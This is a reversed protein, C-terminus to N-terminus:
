WFYADQSPGPQQEPRVDDDDDDDDDDDVLLSVDREGVSATTPQVFLGRKWTEDAEKGENEAPVAPAAHHPRALGATGAVGVHAADEKYCDHQYVRKNLWCQGVNSWHAGRVSKGSAQFGFASTLVREYWQEALGKESGYLIEAFVSRYRRPTEISAANGGDENGGDDNEDDNKDDASNTFPVDHEKKPVYARSSLRLLRDLLASGIGQQRHRVHVFVNVKVGYRGTGSLGGALGPQYVSFFGFGLVKDPVGPIKKRGALAVLFPLQATRCTALIAHFEALPLPETDTAQAGKLVEFNYIEQVGPMDNTNAFRIRCSFGPFSMPGLPFATPAAAAAASASASSAKPGPNGARASSELTTPSPGPAPPPRALLAASSSFFLQSRLPVTAPVALLPSPAPIPSMAKMEANTESVRGAGQEHQTAREEDEPRPGSDVSAAVSANDTKEDSLSGGLQDDEVESEPLNHLICYKRCAANATQTWRRLETGDDEMAVDNQFTEPFDVPGLLRVSVPDVDGNWHHWVSRDLFHPGATEPLKGAWAAIHNCFAVATGFRELLKERSDAGSVELLHAGDNAVALALNNHAGNGAQPEIFHAVSFSDDPRITDSSRGPSPPLTTHGSSSADHGQQWMKEAAMLSSKTLGPYSSAPKPSPHRTTGSPMLLGSSSVEYESIGDKQVAKPTVVQPGDSSGNHATPQRPGQARNRGWNSAHSASRYMSRQLNSFQLTAAQSRSQVSQAAGPYGKTRGSATASSAQRAHHPGFNASEGNGYGTGSVTPSQGQQHRGLGPRGNSYSINSM